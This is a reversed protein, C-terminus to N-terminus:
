APMPSRVEESVAPQDEAADTRGPLLLLVTGVLAWGALVLLSVGAGAGDFFSTSRLATGVAGPPLLQGLTSWGGPLLDPSSTIGSLPNGLLLFVAAALPIGPAGLLRHLGLVPLGIAAIGLAIVGANALYSGDLAGLWGQLVAAMALGGGGAIGLVAALGSRRSRVMLAVLVGAALGGLVLPFAGANFTLGRPDDAPLPVVDTTTVPGADPNATSLHGALDNLLQATAPSGASATLVEVGEPGFVFGGAADRNEIATVVAARDDEVALDLADEGLASAGQDLGAVAEPPGAAAVPLDRPAVESAPWAFACILVTLLATAGLVVRLVTHTHHTSTTTM